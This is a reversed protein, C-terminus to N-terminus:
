KNAEQKLDCDTIKLELGQWPIERLKLTNSLIVWTWPHAIAQQWQAETIIGEDIAQQGSIYRKM